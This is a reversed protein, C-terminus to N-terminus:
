LCSTLLLTTVALAHLQFDDATIRGGFGPRNGQQKHMTGEGASAHPVRMEQRVEGPLTVSRMREAQASM